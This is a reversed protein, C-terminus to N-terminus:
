HHIDYWKTLSIYRDEGSDDIDVQKYGNSTMTQNIKAREQNDNYEITFLKVNHKKFDFAELIKSESGEVDMSIYDINRPASHLELLDNLTISFVKHKDFEVATDGVCSSIGSRFNWGFFENRSPKLYNFDLIEGSKDWIALDSIVTDRSGCLSKLFAPNPDVCIGNWKYFKELIWTNSGTIGDGAGIDVFFLGNRYGCKDLAWFDNGNESLKLGSGEPGM